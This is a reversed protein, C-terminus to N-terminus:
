EEHKRLQVLCRALEHHRLTKSHDTSTRSPTGMLHIAPTDRRNVSQRCGQRRERLSNSTRSRRRARHRM